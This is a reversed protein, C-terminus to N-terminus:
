SNTKTQFFKPKMSSSCLRKLRYYKWFVYDKNKECHQIKSRYSNGRKQINGDGLLTGLLIAEEMKTLLIETMFFLYNDQKLLFVLEKEELIKGRYYTIKKM